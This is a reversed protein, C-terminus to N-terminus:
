AQERVQPGDGRHWLERGCRRQLRLLKAADVDEHDALEGAADREAFAAPARGRREVGALVARALDLADAANRRLERHPPALLDGRDILRVHEIGRPKPAVDCRSHEAVLERLELDLM